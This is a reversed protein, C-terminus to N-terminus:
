ITMRLKAFITSGDGIIFDAKEDTMTMIIDLEPHEQPIHPRLFKVNKMCVATKGEPLLDECIQLLVAGPTIPHGPFHAGYVRHGADLRIRFRNVDGETRVDTITYIRSM